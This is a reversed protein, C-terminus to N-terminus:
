ASKSFLLQEAKTSANVLREPANKTLAKYFMAAMQKMPKQWGMDQVRERAHKGQEALTANMPLHAIAATFAATDELGALQGCQQDVLVAAAADNFAIVPLRSAMAETVVNGFTEVQSGFVFVDGSAYHAALDQGTKPGTFIIEPHQAQLSERVPGDGVVVLKVQRDPQTERLRQYGSIVLEIGKEPSVRGVSLLVTTENNVGWSERLAECRYDPSFHDTDVGRGVITLRKLGSRRLMKKTTKSPVCTAHCRNHFFRLYNTIPKVLYGMKFHRSFDHFQTHYGSTITCKNAQAAYLAAFGLPGETVIHVVDPNCQQFQKRLFRYAPMGFQLQDYQKITFGPVFAEHAAPSYDPHQDQAPRFLSIRHGAKELQCALQYVSNAVGNIEPLWTETVLAIHLKPTDQDTKALPAVSTTSTDM